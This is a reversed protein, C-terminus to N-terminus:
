IRPFTYSAFYDDDTWENTVFQRKKKKKDTGKKPYDLSLGNSQSQLDYKCGDAGVNSM